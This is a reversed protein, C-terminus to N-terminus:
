KEGHDTERKLRSISEQNRSGLYAILDRLDNPNLTLGLPPMASIPPSVTEIESKRLEQNKGDPTGVILTDEEDASIRGVWVHGSNMSITSLGYGPSIEANPNILSELLKTPNM